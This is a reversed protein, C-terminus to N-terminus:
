HVHGGEGHAHGHQIEEHTAARVELIEIEYRVDYGALPHNMDVDVVSMGVKHVMVWRMGTATTLRVIQGPRLMRSSLQKKSVRRMDDAFRPGYAHAQDLDLSFKEGANRGLLAAELPPLLAGHGILVAKNKEHQIRATIPTGDASLAQVSYNLRVVTNKEVKM